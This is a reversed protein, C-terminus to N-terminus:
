PWRKINDHSDIEYDIWRKVKNIVRKLTFAQFNTTYERPAGRLAHDWMVQTGAPKHLFTRYEGNVNELRFKYGKYEEWKIDTM